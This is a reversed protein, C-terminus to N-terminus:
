GSWVIHSTTWNVPHISEMGGIVSHELCEVKSHNVHEPSEPFPARLVGPFSLNPSFRFSQADSIIAQSIKNEESFLQPAKIVQSKVFLFKESNIISAIKRYQEYM